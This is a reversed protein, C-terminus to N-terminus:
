LVHSWVYQGVPHQQKLPSRVFFIPQMTMQSSETMM